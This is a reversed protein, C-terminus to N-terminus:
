IEKKIFSNEYYEISTPIVKDLNFLTNNWTEKRIKGNQFYDIVCPKANSRIPISETIWTEQQISGPKSVDNSKYYIIKAPKDDERNCVDIEVMTGDM